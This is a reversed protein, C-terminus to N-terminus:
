RLVDQPRLTGGPGEHAHQLHAKRNTDLSLQQQAKQFLALLEADGVDLRYADALELMAPLAADQSLLISGHLWKRMVVARTAYRSDWPELGSAQEAATARQTLPLSASFSRRYASGAALHVALAAVLIVALLGLLSGLVLKRRSLRRQPAPTPTNDTATM